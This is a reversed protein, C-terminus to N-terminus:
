GTKAGGPQSDEQAATPAVVEASPGEVERVVELKVRTVLAALAGLAALLPAALTIIGGAV